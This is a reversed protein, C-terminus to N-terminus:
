LCLHLAPCPRIPPKRTIGRDSKKEDHERKDRAYVNKKPILRLFSTSPRFLDRWSWQPSPEHFCYHGCERDGAESRCRDSRSGCLGQGAAEQEQAVDIRADNLIDAVGSRIIKNAPREPTVLSGFAHHLAANCQRQFVDLLLERWLFEGQLHQIAIPRRAGRAIHHCPCIIAPFYWGPSPIVRGEALGIQEPQAIDGFM